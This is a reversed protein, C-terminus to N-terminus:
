KIFITDKSIDALLYKRMRSCFELPSPHGHQFGMARIQGFFAELYDQNLRRTLIYKAGYKKKMDELLLPLTRCNMIIGKQFPAISGIRYQGDRTKHRRNISQYLGITKDLIEMQIDLSLGFAWTRQRSDKKPISSNFVDFWDNTVGIPSWLTLHVSGTNETDFFNGINKAFNN